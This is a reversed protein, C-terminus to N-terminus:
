GKIENGYKKAKGVSLMNAFLKFAGPVGAPLERFFSLGTYIYHGKGYPAVLLSGKKATEGTDKMSLLSEYASDWQDPFYLGREQVWGDFDKKEIPNPFRLVPHNPNLLTVEAQEESVRDRSLRIPYPAMTSFDQTGRGTTNYQVILTGGEQVYNVLIDNRFKLEDLVNYARIGMVIADLSALSERTIESINLIHVTYGIAELNEPIADGAGMIYGIHQGEKEVNMRVVRTKAPMLILQTPIHDYNIEILEQDFVNNASIFKPHIYGQSDGEPPILSFQLLQEEGAVTLNVPIEMPSYHWGEPVRLSLNGSIPAANAKLRVSVMQGHPNAFIKVNETTAVSVPPIIDFNRSREGKDPEAYRHIVPRIISLPQGGIEVSITAWFPKPTEPKGILKESPIEYTGLSGLSRLWYPSTSEQNERINLKISFRNATNFPLQFVSDIQTIEGIRIDKVTFTSNSRNILELNVKAESGPVGFSKDSSVELYLGCVGAILDKLQPLKLNKWYSDDLDNLLKYAKLLEPLHVSPNTFNFNREVNSLIEGIIKGGKLRNWSTDIGEFLNDSSISEGAILELYETESGRAMPRGFGQCLHQSSALSAIENNSMGREPYYVGVDLKTFSAVDVSKLFREQSGYSWWSTNHFLRKPQWPELDTLQDEYIEPNGSIGFAETSLIASSTHHGHTSGPTRHDFRNIIVDPRFERIIRVVDSLILDKDWIKLTEDPHKSYGFDIARTFFQSGGDINRAELLEQTRLVGLLERLEPGILNQGGDGRTLSLYATRAHVKNALYSILRTNEDDPHAAIYLASGLFNLEKLNNYLRVPDTDPRFRSQGLLPLLPILIFLRWLSKLM